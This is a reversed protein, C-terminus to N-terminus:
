VSTQVLSCVFPRTLGRAARMGLREPPERSEPEERDGAREVLGYQEDDSDGEDQEEAMREHFGPVM